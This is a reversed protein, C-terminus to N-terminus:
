NILIAGLTKLILGYWYDVQKVNALYHMSGVSEPARGEIFDAVSEPVNNMILFNYFWKRLYKPRLSSGGLSTVIKKSTYFGHLEHAFKMPLYVYFVKKQGRSYNLPYKAIEGDIILKTKNFESLMKVLETTRIGSYMLIKFVTKAREDKLKSYAERIIEDTPVYNDSNIKRSRLVKRFRNATEEQVIGYDILYNLYVRVAVSAYEPADNIVRSLESVGLIDKSVYRRLCSEIDKSYNDNFQRNRTWIKFDNIHKHFAPLYQRWQPDPETPIRPNLDRGKCKVCIAYTSHFILSSIM